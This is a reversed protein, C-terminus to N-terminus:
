TPTPDNQTSPLPSDVSAPLERGEGKRDVLLSYKERQSFTVHIKRQPTEAPQVLFLLLVPVAPFPSDADGFRSYDGKGGGKNELLKGM